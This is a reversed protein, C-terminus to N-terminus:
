LIDSGEQPAEVAAKSHLFKEIAQKEMSFNVFWIGVIFPLLFISFALCVLFLHLPLSSRFELVPDSLSLNVYGAFPGSRRSFGYTDKTYILVENDRKIIFGLIDNGFLEEKYRYESIERSLNELFYRVENSLPKSSIVFGRKIKGGTDKFSMIDIAAWIACVVTAIGGLFSAAIPVFYLIMIFIAFAWSLIDNM